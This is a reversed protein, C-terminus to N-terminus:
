AVRTVTLTRRRCTYTVPPHPPRSATRVRWCGSWSSHTRTWRTGRDSGSSCSRTPREEEHISRDRDHRQGACTYGLRDANSRVTSYLFHDADPASMPAPPPPCTYFNNYGEEDEGAAHATASRLCSPWLFPIRCPDDKEATDDVGDIVLEADDDDLATDPLGQTRGPVCPAVASAAADRHVQVPLDMAGHCAADSTSTTEHMSNHQKPHSPACAREQTEAACQKSQQMEREWM